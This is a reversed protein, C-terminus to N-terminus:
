RVMSSHTNEWREHRQRKRRHEHAEHIEGMILFLASAFFLILFACCFVELLRLAVDFAGM